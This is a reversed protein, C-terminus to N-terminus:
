AARRRVLWLVAGFLLTALVLLWSTEIWQFAWFRDSPQYSAMLAYGHHALYQVPDFNAPALGHARFAGPGAVQIDFPALVHDITATSVPHRDHAWWQSILWDSGSLNPNSSTLPAEYHQRLYAGTLLALGSWAALTAVLAPVVRRLAM